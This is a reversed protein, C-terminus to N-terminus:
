GRGPPRGQLLARVPCGGGGPEKEKGARTPPLVCTAEWYEVLFRAAAEVDEGTVCARGHREAEESSRRGLGAACALVFRRQRHHHEWSVRGATLLPTLAHDFLDCLRDYAQPDVGRGIDINEMFEARVDRFTHEFEMRADDTPTTPSRCSSRLASRRRDFSHPAHRVRM